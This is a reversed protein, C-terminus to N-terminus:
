DITFVAGKGANFMPADEMVVIAAEVADLAAGGQELVGYGANLAESLKAKFEAEEEPTYRGPALAGAGGHIVITVPAKTESEQALCSGAATLAALFGFVAQKM